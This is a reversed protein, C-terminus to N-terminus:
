VNQQAILFNMGYLAATDELQAIKLEVKGWPTWAHKDIWAKMKPLIFDASKMVGGGIIVM